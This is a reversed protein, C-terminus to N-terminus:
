HVAMHTMVIESTFYVFLMIHLPIFSSSSAVFLRVVVFYLFRQSIVPLIASDAGKCYVVIRGMRDRVIVSMRKRDSDFPLVHLVKYKLIFGLPAIQLLTARLHRSCLRIGHNSAAEVLALEDPSEAEYIPNQVVDGDLADESSQNSKKFRLLPSLKFGKMHLKSFNLSLLKTSSIRFLEASGLLHAFMMSSHESTSHPANSSLHDPVSVSHAPPAPKVTAPASQNLREDCESSCHSEQARECSVAEQSTPCREPSKENNEVDLRGEADEFQVVSDANVIENVAENQQEDSLDDDNVGSFSVKQLNSRNDSTDNTFRDSIYQLGGDADEETMNVFENDVCFSCDDENAEQNQLVISSENEDLQTVDENPMAENEDVDNSLSRTPFQQHESPATSSFQRYNPTSEANNPRRKVYRRNSPSEIHMRKLAEEDNSQTLNKNCISLPSSPEIHGCTFTVKPVPNSSNTNNLSKKSPMRRLSHNSTPPPLHFASNGAIFSDGIFFGSEDLHDQHPQANVVVTNCIAMNIFFHLLDSQSSDDNFSLDGKSLFSQFTKALRNQLEIDVKMVSSSTSTSHTNTTPLATTETGYDHEAVYCRRFIMQNETLTGTKDSMVYQVQGLEEPINLARCEIRKDVADYYLNIDQSTLYIQGLKIIEISVYLSIPIMVQLVIIYSWFNIFGELQPNLSDINKVFTLYPVQYPDAFSSLWRTSFIAGTLCMLLLILVCWIIDWNTLRELESRKYRPGSNNLMAKTDRGAYLVIGEVFDTNRVECGRLLLNVKDVAEKAGNEHELYGSFRYIQNNPQECYVTATFQPPTFDLSASGMSSIIQRQKLSSEGDM